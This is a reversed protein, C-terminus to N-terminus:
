LLGIKKVLNKAGQVAENFKYRKGDTLIQEVLDKVSLPFAYKNLTSIVRKYPMPSKSGELDVLENLYIVLQPLGIVEKDVKISEIDLITKKLSTFVVQELANDIVEDKISQELLSANHHLEKAGINGSAGKISHILIRARSLDSCGILKYYEEESAQFSDSFNLLLEKYFEVDGGLRDLGDDTNITLFNFGNEEM